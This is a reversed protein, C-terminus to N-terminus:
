FLGVAVMFDLVAKYSSPRLRRVSRALIMELVGAVNYCPKKIDDPLVHSLGDLSLGTATTRENV